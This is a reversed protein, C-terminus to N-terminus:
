RTFVSINFPVEIVPQSALNTHLRISGRTSQKPAEPLRATVMYTKGTEITVVELKMEPMSSEPQQIEVPVGEKTATVRITRALMAELRSAPLRDFNGIGWALREPVVAVDGVVRGIVPVEHFPTASGPALLQVRETFRQTAGAGTVAVRVTATAPDAGREIETQINSGTGVARDLELPQGDTRRVTLTFNTTVGLPLDGAVLTAPQVEFIHVVDARIILQTNPAAPDNSPVNISKQVVGRSNGLTLTFVLEGTEGPKLVEPKVAAVTCGCAPAPKRLQLDADGANRFTFTGTVASVNATKGFDYTTQAFEIKPAAWASGAVLWGTLLITWKM